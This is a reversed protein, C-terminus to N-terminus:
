SQGIRKDAAANSPAFEELVKTISKVIEKVSQKVTPSLAAGIGMQATQIGILAVECGLEANLYEALIYLPMAHTSASLGSIEQWALWRVMGTSEGMQAADILLVLDPAFQRLKGTQNEPAHGGEIVFFDQQHLLAQQLARAAMVGAADDGRLEHGIGVIAVRALKHSKLRSLAQKLSNSWGSSM